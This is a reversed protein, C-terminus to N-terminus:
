EIGDAKRVKTLLRICELPEMIQYNEKRATRAKFDHLAKVLIEVQEKNTSRTARGVGFREDFMKRAILAGSPEYGDTGLTDKTSFVRFFLEVEYNPMGEAEMMLYAALVSTMRKTYANKGSASGSAVYARNLDKYHKRIWEVAQAKTPNKFFGGLITNAVATLTSNVEGDCSATAIQCVTRNSGSDYINVSDDVGHVVLMTVPKDAVVIAALRHQGNKLTGDAGFEIAEGNLQWRGSKMDSAYKYVTARSIKRYNDTNKKLYEAATKPTIQEIKAEM